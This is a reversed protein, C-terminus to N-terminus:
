LEIIVAETAQFKVGASGEPFLNQSAEKIDYVKNQWFKNDSPNLHSIDVQKSLLEAAESPDIRRGQYNLDAAPKKVTKIPITVNDAFSLVGYVLLSLFLGPLGLRGGPLLAM